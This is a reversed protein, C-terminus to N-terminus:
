MSTDIQKNVVASDAFKVGFKDEIVKWLDQKGDDFGLAWIGTGALHMKKVFDYRIGLAKPDDYFIIRWTGSNEDYYAKWSTQGVSDWGTMYNSVSSTDSAIEYPQSMSSAYYSTLTQAKVQPQYVPYNYGYWPLGLVLKSAPMQTLFDQVATSVDYWYQGQKYGYLPDTPMASDSTTTAFDYAMMFIEDSAKSLAAIDYLKPEKVSSALVSVSVQSHPVQAHVATTLNQIFASYADRYGQGLDNVSEFDVNVGDIGRKQIAQVIQSIANQQAEPSDLLATIDANNMQTVTLVVRTGNQHAKEFLQTAQDSWFSTYGADQTNLDGTGTVPIDFYALTTLANFDVGGLKDFNWYPAFGFVEYGSKQSQQMSLLRVPAKVSVPSLMKQTASFPYFFQLLLCGIFLLATVANGTIYKQLGLM